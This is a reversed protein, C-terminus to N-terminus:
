GVMATSIPKQTSIFFTNKDFPNELSKWACCGLVPAPSEHRRGALREQERICPSPILTKEWGVEGAGEQGLSGWFGLVASPMPASDGVYTM